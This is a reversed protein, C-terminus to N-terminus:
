LENIVDLTEKACKQWSFDKIRQNGIKTLEARLYDDTLVKKMAEAMSYIDCPNFLLGAGKLAEQISAINSAAIPLGCAMAELLSVGFAEYSSPFIFASAGCYVYPMDEESIWGPMLVEDDLNYERILYHVEDYGYFADGVLVLKHKIEKNQDRLIAYAEILAPINKKKEIKGVYFIYQGSIGYKDLVVKIKRIDNIKRFLKEDYGNYIVKIKDPKVKYYRLIDNKSSDSVTIVKKAKKLVYDTSWYLYDTAEASYKGLTFVRALLNILLRTKRGEPGILEYKYLCKNKMFGVDHITVLSKRPHILPLTHTPIFLADPAHLFCELSLRGLTWFNKYPWKLIKAKFNNHPSKIIQYGKKDYVAPSYPLDSIFNEQTLDVLGEGLPKDSYLIYQNKSDLKALYRIIFYSYWETGTKHEKNARSADIGILM